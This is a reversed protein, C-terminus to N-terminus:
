VNFRANETDQNRSRYLRKQFGTRNSFAIEEIGALFPYQRLIEPLPYLFNLSVIKM